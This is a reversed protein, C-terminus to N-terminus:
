NLKKDIWNNFSTDYSEWKVYIKNYKRKLVKEVRFSKKMHKRCNNKTFRELLKKVMLIALLM